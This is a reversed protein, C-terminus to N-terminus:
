EREGPSEVLGRKVPNNYCYKIKERITDIAHCNHDYCRKQWLVSQIGPAGINSLKFYKGTTRAKITGILIGAKTEPQPYIVLHVHEPM